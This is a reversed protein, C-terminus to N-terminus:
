LSRLSSLTSKISFRHSLRSTLTSRLRCLLHIKGRSGHINKPILAIGCDQVNFSGSLQPSEFVSNGNFFRTSQPSLRFFPRPEFCLKNKKRKKEVRQLVQVPQKVLYRWTCNTDECRSLLITLCTSPFMVEVEGNLDNISRRLKYTKSEWYFDWLIKVRSSTPSNTIIM